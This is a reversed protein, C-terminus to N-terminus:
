IPLATANLANTPENTTKVVADYRAAMRGCRSLPRLFISGPGKQIGLITALMKPAIEHEYITTNIMM